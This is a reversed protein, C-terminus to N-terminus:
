RVWRVFWNFKHDELVCNPMWLLSVLEPGKLSCAGLMNQIREYIMFRDSKISFHGQRRVCKAFQALKKKNAGLGNQMHM